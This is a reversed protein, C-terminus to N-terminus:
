TDMKSRRSPEAFLPREYWVFPEELVEFIQHDVVPTGIHVRNGIGFIKPINQLFNERTPPVGRLLRRIRFFINYICRSRSIPSPHPQSYNGSQPREFLPTQGFPSYPYPHIHSPFKGHQGIRYRQCMRVIAQSSMNKEPEIVIPEEYWVFPASMANGACIRINDSLSDTQYM